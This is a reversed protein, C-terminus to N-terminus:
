QVNARVHPGNLKLLVLLDAEEGVADVELMVVDRLGFLCKGHVILPDHIFGLHLQHANVRSIPM